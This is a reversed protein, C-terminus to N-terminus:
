YDLLGRLMSNRISASTKMAGHMNIDCWKLLYKPYYGGHKIWKGRFIQRRKVYLGNQPVTGGALLSGIEGCLEPAVRQDADLCLELGISCDRTTYPVFVKNQLKACPARLWESIPIVFGRKSTAIALAM